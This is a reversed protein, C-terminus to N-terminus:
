CSAAKSFFQCNEGPSQMVWASVSESVWGSVNAEKRKGVFIFIYVDMPTFLTSTFKILSLQPFILLYPLHLCVGSFILSIGSLVLLPAPKDWSRWLSEPQFPVFVSTSKQQSLNNQTTTPQALPPCVHETCTAKVCIIPLCAREIWTRWGALPPHFGVKM